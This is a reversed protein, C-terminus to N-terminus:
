GVRQAPRPHIYWRQRAVWETMVNNGGMGDNAQKRKSTVIGERKTEEYM